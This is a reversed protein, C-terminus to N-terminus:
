GVRELVVTGGKSGAPCYGFGQASLADFIRRIGAKGYVAPHLEM